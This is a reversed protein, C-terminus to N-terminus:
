IGAEEFLGLQENIEAAKLELQKKMDRLVLMMGLGPGWCGGSCRAFGDDELTHLYCLATPSSMNLDESLTKVTVPEKQGVLYRLIDLTIKASVIRKYSTM